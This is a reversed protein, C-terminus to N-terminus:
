DKPDIKCKPARRRELLAIKNSRRKGLKILGTALKFARRRPLSLNKSSMSYPKSATRVSIAILV